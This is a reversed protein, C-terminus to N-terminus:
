THSQIQPMNRILGHFFCLNQIKFDVSKEAALQRQYSSGRSLPSVFEQPLLRWWLCCIGTQATRAEMMAMAKRYTQSMFGIPKKICLSGCWQLRSKGDDALTRNGQPQARHRPRPSGQHGRSSREQSPHHSLVPQWGRGKQGTVTSHCRSQSCCFKYTHTPRPKKEGFFQRHSTTLPEFSDGLLMQRFPSSHKGVWTQLQGQHREPLLEWVLNFTTWKCLWNSYNNKFNM